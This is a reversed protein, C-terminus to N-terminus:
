CVSWVTWGTLTFTRTRVNGNSCTEKQVAGVRCECKEVCSGWVSAQWGGTDPNCKVSRTATGCNGCPQTKVPTATEDCTQGTCAGWSGCNGGNCDATCVRTKTGSDARGCAALQPQKQEMAYCHGNQSCALLCDCNCTNDNLSFGNSCSKDGCNCVSKADGVINGFSTCISGSCGLGANEYSTSFTFNSAGKNYNASMCKTENNLSLTYDNIKLQLDGDIKGEANINNTLQGMNSFGTFYQSDRAYKQIQKNRVMELLNIAEVARSKTVAKTYLPYVVAALIAIILVVVLIETLTFGNKAPLVRRKIEINPM